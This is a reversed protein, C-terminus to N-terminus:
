NVRSALWLSGDLDRLLVETAKVTRAEADIVPLVEVFRDLVVMAPRQAAVPAMDPVTIHGVPSVAPQAAARAKDKRAKEKAKRTMATYRVASAPRTADYMYKGHTTRHVWPYGQPRDILSTLAQGVKVPDENLLAAVERPTMEIRTYHRLVEYIRSRMAPKGNFPNLGPQFKAPRPSHRHPHTPDSTTM